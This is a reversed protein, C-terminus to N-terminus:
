ATYETESDEHCIKLFHNMKSVILTRPFHDQFISLVIQTSHERQIIDLGELNEYRFPIGQYHKSTWYTWSELQENDRSWGPFHINLVQEM